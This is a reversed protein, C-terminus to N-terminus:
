SPKHCYSLLLASIRIAAVLIDRASICLRLLAFLHEQKKGHFYVGRVRVREGWEPPSPIIKMLPPSWIGTM